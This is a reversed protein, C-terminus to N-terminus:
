GNLNDRNRDLIKRLERLANFHLNYIAGVSKKMKRAIEESSFGQFYVLEIVERRSEPLEKMAESLTSRLDQQSVKDQATPDMLRDSKDDPGDLSEELKAPGKSKQIFKQCAHQLIVQVWPELETDYPFYANLIIVAAETACEAASDRTVMEENFSHKKLFNYAWKLMKEFLPGWVKSSRKMQLEYIVPNLAEYKNAVRQVYDDVLDIDEEIFGQVRGRDLNAYIIPRIKAAWDTGRQEALSQLANEIKAKIGDIELQM